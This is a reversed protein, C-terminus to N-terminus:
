EGPKVGDRGGNMSARAQRIAVDFGRRADLKWQAIEAPTLGNVAQADGAIGIARAATQMIENLRARSQEVSRVSMVLARVEAMAQEATERGFQESM